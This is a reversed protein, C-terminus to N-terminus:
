RKLKRLEEKKDNSIRFSEIAKQLAKNYTFDDLTNNKLYELVNM